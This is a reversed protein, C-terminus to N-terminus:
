AKEPAALKEVAELLEEASPVETPKESRHFFRVTGDRDVVLAGALQRVDSRPSASWRLSAERLTRLGELPAELLPGLSIGFLSARPLGLKRYNSREPDGYVPFELGLERAVEAAEAGTGQGIAVVRAGAARFRPLAEQM